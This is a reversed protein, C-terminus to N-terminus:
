AHKEAYDVAASIRRAVELLDLPQGDDSEIRFREKALCAAARETRFCINNASENVYAEGGCARDCAAAMYVSWDLAAGRVEIADDAGQETVGDEHALADRVADRFEKAGFDDWAAMATEYELRSLDDEDAVPYDALGDLFAAVDDSLRYELVAGARHPRLDAVAQM